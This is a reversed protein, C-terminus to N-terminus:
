ESMSFRFSNLPQFFRWSADVASSSLPMDFAYQLCMEAFPRVVRVAGDSRFCLSNGSMSLARQSSAYLSSYSPRCFSPVHFAMVSSSYSWSFFTMLALNKGM